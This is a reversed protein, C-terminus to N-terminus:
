CVTVVHKILLELRQTATHVITKASGDRLLAHQMSMLCGLFFLNPMLIFAKTSKGVSKDLSDGSVVHHVLNDM